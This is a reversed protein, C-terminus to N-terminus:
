NYFSLQVYYATIFCMAFLPLFRVMTANLTAAMFTAFSIIIIIIIIYPISGRVSCALKVHLRSRVQSQMWMDTRMVFHRTLTEEWTPWLASQLASPAFVWWAMLVSYSCLVSVVLGRLCGACHDSHSAFHRQALYCLFLPAFHTLRLM